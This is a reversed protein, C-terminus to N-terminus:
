FLNHERERLNRSWSVPLEFRREGVMKKVKNLVRLPSGSKIVVRRKAQARREELKKKADGLLAGSIERHKKGGAYYDIGYVTGNTGVYKFSGPYITKLYQGL